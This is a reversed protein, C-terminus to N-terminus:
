SIEQEYVLPFLAAKESLLLKRQSNIAAVFTVAGGAVQFRALVSLFDPKVASEIVWSTLRM